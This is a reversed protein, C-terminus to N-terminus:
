FFVLAYMAAISLWFSWSRRHSAAPLGEAPIPPKAKGGRASLLSTQPGLCNQVTM